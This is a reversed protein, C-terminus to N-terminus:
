NKKGGNTAPESGDAATTVAQIAARTFTIKTNNSEDVKLTVEDDKVSLVTGIIGGVTTVRDNKKLAALMNARRKREKSQPRIILFYFVAGMMVLMPLFSTLGPPQPQAGDSAPKAQALVTLLEHM